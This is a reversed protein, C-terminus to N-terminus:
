FIEKIQELNVFGEVRFWKEFYWMIIFEFIIRNFMQSSIFRLGPPGKYVCIVTYYSFTPTNKLIDEKCCFVTIEPFSLFTPM